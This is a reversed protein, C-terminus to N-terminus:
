RYHRIAKPLRIRLAASPLGVQWRAKPSGSDKREPLTRRPAPAKRIAMKRGEYSSLVPDSPDVIVDVPDAGRVLLFERRAPEHEVVAWPTTDLLRLKVKSAKPNKEKNFQDGELIIARLPLRQRYSLSLDDLLADSRRKWIAESTPSLGTPIRPKLSCVLMEDQIRISSHWICVAVLKDPEAFSWNYCYKPNAAPSRGRYNKWDSVGVGAQQLLSMVLQVTKPKLSDLFDQAAM